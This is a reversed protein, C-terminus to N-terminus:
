LYLIIIIIINKKIVTNKYMYIVIYESAMSANM